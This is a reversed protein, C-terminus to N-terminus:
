DWVLDSSQFVPGEKCSRAYGPEKHIKVVCGMCAGVGCAMIHEVSVFCPINKTESIQHCAKLMPAPGCCYLVTNSQIMTEHTNLYSGTTGTFGISGDDTCIIPNQNHFHDYNPVFDRNRCGFIFESCINKNKMTESLFLIPGLGVGGAVLIAKKNQEPLIFGNGLPGIVDIIDGAKKASLLETGRGKRQYIISASQNSPNFGSFAFPRRLLPVSDRSVRITLFNGPLPAASPDWSFELLFFNESIPENKIVTSLSQKMPM